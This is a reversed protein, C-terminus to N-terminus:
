KAPDVKAPEANIEGTGAAEAKLTDRIEALLAAEASVEEEEDEIGLVEDKKEALRNLPVVVFFYLAFAVILFNFMATLIAGPQVLAPPGLLSVEFELVSDFSPQGFLAGILPSFFKDVVANVVEGFAAGIIVGVALDVANGRAIFERFGAFM